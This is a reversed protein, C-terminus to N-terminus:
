FLTPNDDDPKEKEEPPPPPKPKEEIMRHFIAIVQEDNMRAVKEQWTMNDEGYYNSVFNRMYQIDPM